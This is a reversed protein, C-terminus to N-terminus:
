VSAHVRKKKKTRLHALSRMAMHGTSSRKSGTDSHMSSPASEAQAAEKRRLHSGSDKKRTWTRAQNRMSQASSCMTCTYSRVSEGSHVM